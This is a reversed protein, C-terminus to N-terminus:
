SLQYLRQDGLYGIRPAFLMGLLDFLAFVM